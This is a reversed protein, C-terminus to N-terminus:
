LRRSLVVGLGGRAGAQLVSQPVTGPSDVFTARAVLPTVEAATRIVETAWVGAAMLIPRTVIREGVPCEVSAARGALLVVMPILHDRGGMLVGEVVTAVGVAVMAVVGVVMAVVEVVMAVAGVAMLVMVGLVHEEPAGGGVMELFDVSITVDLSCSRWM